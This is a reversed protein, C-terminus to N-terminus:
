PAGPGPAAAHWSEPDNWTAPHATPDNIVLAQGQGDTGPYWTDDYEFRMVAAELPWALSLVIDEGGGSLGGVYEGAVRPGYGHAFRFATLNGVVVIYEGPTLQTAGFEFEIGEVFRVGELNITTDSINKLEIYDYNGGGPANYMLETIRLGALVDLDEIYPFDQDLSTTTVDLEASIVFDSSDAPRNLAHIALLNAGAKLDGIYKSIDVNVDFSTGDAEHGSSAGSDWQPTGSFNRRAETLEVGNLYVVYGDDYRMKLTMGTYDALDAADVNFPIRIYCTTYQDYMQAEVDLTILDDYDGSSGREYGVGGPGGICPLWASDDFDPDSKWTDAVHDASTPVIARKDANEPMLTTTTVIVGGYTNAVRPTPLEFFEFSNAGNPARGQSVDTTQPGYIVQDILNLGGDFLGIMEGDASLKFDLESPDNGDNASFVTYGEPPIFSLPVIAHKGPQTVPNDTLYMGGLSVPQPHPNYLEIFDDDFLVQGNALWENIKLTDPNGLPQPINAMGFTLRNLKWARDYGARGISYDNIQPGFEVSDLLERTGDGKKKGYLYLGEGDASLAFPIQNMGVTDSGAFLVMYDGPDMITTIVSAANFEFKCPDVPNDTLTMGTLDIPSPGDYYLEIVDPDAGHTHVLVENIVLESHTVDITWTRSAAPDAESQWIGAVDKGIAYVTYSEGDTLGTLELPSEVPIEASWPGTPSNVSYKYHTIGPGGVTLTADTHYTVAAPEGSIAAATSVYAGMDLACPGAGIAGSAPKLHFDGNPDVFLPDADINGAGLSHWEFPLMSSNVSVEVGGDVDQFEEANDSFICGNVRAAKGSASGSEHFDIAAGTQGVFTNHAADMESGGKLLVGNVNGFFVNRVVTIKSGQDAAISNSTGTGSGGLFGTFTNGAIYADANDLDLGDDQGGLFLNDYVQIIPGPLEGGSFDVVDQYGSPRGFTNGRLILYESGTLGHGHVGEEDDNDPFVSNQVILRPHVVELVNKSTRAWTVNDILLRSNDIRVWQPGSDGYEMDVYALRNERDTATLTVGAWTTATGPVRTMRIRRYATGEALLRGSVAIGADQDFYLTTGPEITLTLGAPVTLDATVRWPGSAADLTRNGALAGSIESLDGDDYWIDLADSDVVVGTGDPGEFARVLIRNIGPNLTLNEDLTWTGAEQSWDAPKDNVLVSSTDIANAKGHINGASLTSGTTKYFGGSMGLSCEVTFEQPVQPDDAAGPYGGYLISMPREVIFQKIGRTGEIESQPVWNALFQDVVPYLNEPAFVTRALERYQAYYAKLRRLGDVNTYGFIEWNPAYSHDGQGFLTDLDHPLLWFRPDEVGRYMAYDDGEGEYL